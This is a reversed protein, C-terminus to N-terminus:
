LQGLMGINREVIELVVVNPREKSLLKRDFHHTRVIYTERFYGPIFQNMSFSFSDGILLLKPAESNKSVFRQTPLGVEINETTETQRTRLYPAPTVKYSVSDIFERNLAIMTVLDGGAGTFPTVSYDSRTPKPMKPFDQRVREALGLSAIMSGYDNWHTDTQCYIVRETKAARLSDRVDVVPVNTHQAMYAKFRDFNSTQPKLQLNDPANEPYITYSDPAVLVYLKAGQAALQQQLESLNRAISALTDPRIIDIGRHQDVIQGVSNGPFFWGNKGMVVKEPLPSTALVKYKFQSYQYFLANRWGFNEKYYLGFQAIFTQVRPFTFTPFPTLIRKETSKFGASLNLWQDLTPLILLIAFGVSVVVAKYRQARSGASGAPNAQVNAETSTKQTM